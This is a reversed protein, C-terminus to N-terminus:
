FVHFPGGIGTSAAEIQVTGVGFHERVSRHCAPGNDLQVKGGVTAAAATEPLQNDGELDEATAAADLSIPQM